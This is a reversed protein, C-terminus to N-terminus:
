KSLTLQDIWINKIDQGYFITLKPEMCKAHDKLFKLVLKNKWEMDILKERDKSERHVKITYLLVTLDLLDM